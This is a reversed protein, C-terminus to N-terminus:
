FRQRLMFRATFLSDHTRPENPRRISLPAYFADFAVDTGRGISWTAGAGTSWLMGHTTEHRRDIFGSTLANVQFQLDAYNAAGTLHLMPRGLVALRRGAFLEIGGHRLTSTDSSPQECGYRNEPDFRLHNVPCTIAGNVTGTQASLTAAVISRDSSQLIRTLGASFLNSRLGQIRVPPVWAATISFHQPLAVTVRPRVLLPLKNLDEEKTGDFGVTREQRTLRPIPTMELSVDVSRSARDVPAAITSLQTLSDFYKLAWAEPRDFTLKEEIRHVPQALASTSIAMAGVMCFAIRLTPLLTTITVANRNNGSSLDM